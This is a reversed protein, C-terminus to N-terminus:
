ALRLLLASCQGATGPGVIADMAGLVGGRASIIEFAKYVAKEVLDTLRDM